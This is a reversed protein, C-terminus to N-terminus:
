KAAGNNSLGNNEECAMVCIGLKDALEIMEDRDFVVTAGAEVVLVRAGSQNMARITEVGVAPIDFRRDQGPKCIKVVVAGGKGLAAGRRITADTGDIAEVALVSGGEVLICQGIDFCGIEKALNWAIDIDAKESRSPKRKTWCGKVALLDPILFTSSLIKIGEKELAGAFARLIGDDHTAVCSSILSIAKIDPKVDSFIKRKTIAGLMVAEAVGNKKFFNM